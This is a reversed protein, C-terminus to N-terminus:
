VIASEFGIHGKTKSPGTALVALSHMADYISRVDHAFCSNSIRNEEQKSCNSELCFYSTQTSGIQNVLREAQIYIPQDSINQISITAELTQGIKGSTITEANLVKISQANLAYVCILLTISALVRNLM